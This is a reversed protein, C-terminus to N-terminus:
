VYRFDRPSPQGEGNRTHLFSWSSGASATGIYVNDSYLDVNSNQGNVTATGTITGCGASTIQGSYSQAFALGGATALYLICVRSRMM